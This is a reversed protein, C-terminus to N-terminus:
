KNLVPTIRIMFDTWQNSFHIDFAECKPRYAFYVFRNAKTGQMTFDKFDAGGVITLEVAQKATYYIRVCVEDGKYEHTEYKTITIAEPGIIERDKKCSSLALITLAILLQLHKKM